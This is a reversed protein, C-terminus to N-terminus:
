DHAIRKLADVSADGSRLVTPQCITREDGLPEIADDAREEYGFGCVYGPSRALAKETACGLMQTPPSRSPHTVIGIWPIRSGPM